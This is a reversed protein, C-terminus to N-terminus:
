SAYKESFFRSLAHDLTPLILGHRSTLASFNPRMAPYGLEAIPIPQLLSANYNARFAVDKALDSWSVTGDNVLHWIGKEDDILLDLSANVLDPVYTPSVYVDSAVKVQEGKGLFDLIHSVFNYNDWPSFFASTRIVLAHPDNALVEQEAIAKSAGYVNLPNVPDNEVYAEKKEGDFVLDSSFTLFKIGYQRCAKALKVPGETNSLFCDEFEIEADDVRVFGAANIIAWPKYMEITEAIQTPNVLNLEARTLSIHFINRQVCIKSFAKGLTGTAGIILVPSTVQPQLVSFNIAQPYLLRGQREWWGKGQMLPHKFDEGAALSKVLNKLATPRPELSRIDYVGSEYNGHAQTLLRDWGYAGFISWITFAQIAIGESKLKKVADWSSKIWRLQDERGCYLHAETVALPLHFRNWAERLLNPLGDLTIDGTRVAEVDAYAQRSNGGHSSVPYQELREDLYRESTVYYNFGLIDPPMAHDIFFQLEMATLGNDMCYRWLPHVPTLRGCLLDIGLWRRENEFDAQYKLNKTSHVKGLDETHILRANPNVKRIAEMAMITAKCEQYLIRLFSVDNSEHPHWLGYLGCFRATTLPENIPTYYTIWPFRRAVEAAFAALGEAFNVEQLNVFSPGSGHHVLGAIVEINRAKLELLNAEIVGWQPPQHQQLQHYEWLIPYRLKKIGLDDLLVLDNKRDYHGQYHLQNFYQDGVRNITCEIGGWLEM